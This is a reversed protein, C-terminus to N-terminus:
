RVPAQVRKAAIQGQDIISQLEGEIRNVVKVTLWAKERSDTDAAGTAEWTAIAAARVNSFAEKLLPDEALRQAASARLAVDSM